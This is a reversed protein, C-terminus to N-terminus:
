GDYASCLRQWFTEGAQGAVKVLSRRLRLLNKRRLGTSMQRFQGRDFDILWVKNEADLLINFANLDAHWVNADHFRKLVRAIDTANATGLQTALPKAPVIRATILAARYTLGKRWYGAAMPAPVPLDMDYLQQLMVYEAMARTRESGRWVYRNKSIKAVLGGRRYHRLVAPGLPGNIFWASQRGGKQVPQAKLAPNMPDFLLANFVDDENSEPSIRELNLNASFRLLGNRVPRDFWSAQAHDNHHSAAKM